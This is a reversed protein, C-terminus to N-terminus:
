NEQVRARVSLGGPQRNGGAPPQFTYRERKRFGLRNHFSHFQIALFLIVNYLHTVQFM